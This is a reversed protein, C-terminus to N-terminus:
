TDDRAPSAARRRRTKSSRSSKKRSGKGAKTPVPAELLNKLADKVAASTRKEILRDITARDVKRPKWKGDPDQEWFVDEVKHAVALSRDQACKPVVREPWLHLALQAWDYDGKCLKDWVKKCEKQWARHHPVLRWLPAFNILVGDNLDPNWLPAVRAIEDVFGRLEEVFMEQEAIARRQSAGEKGGGTQVLNTLRREEHRLKPVALDQLVTYISDRTLCHYNLWVSYRRSPVTLQWYIPAKRRSESYRSLHKDFFAKQLYSRLSPGALSSVAESFWRPSQESDLIEICSTALDAPHGPDDVLVPIQGLPSRFVSGWSPLTDYPSPGSGSRTAGACLNAPSEWRKFAQGVLFSLVDFSLNLVHEDEDPVVGIRRQAALISGPPRGFHQCLLELRRDAMFTCKTLSRSPGHTSTLDDILKELSCSSLRRLDSDRSTDWAETASYACPHRGWISELDEWDSDTLQLRARFVGEASEIAALVELATKEGDEVRNRIVESFTKSAESGDLLPGSFYLSAENVTEGRALRRWCREGSSGPSSDCEVDVNPLPVEAVVKPGYHRAVGGSQLVGGAGVCMEVFMRAIRTSLYPLAALAVTVDLPGITVGNPSFVCGNPLFRFSIDSATRETYTVGSHRYADANSSRRAFQAQSWDVVLSLHQYIPSYEGGKAFPVWRDGISRRPVEWWLRLLRFDDGTQLGVKPFALRAALSNHKGFSARWRHRVWYVIRSGPVQDFDSPVACYVDQASNLSVMGLLTTAKERKSLLDFFMIQDDGSRSVIYAAAEVLANDLVREGLDAVLRLKAPGHLLRRRWGNTLDQFFGLRSSLVGLRGHPTLKASFRDVFATYIDQSANAYREYLYSRSNVAVEGFPPNMLVVDYQGRSVDIFGLGRAADDVFLQREYGHSARTRHAYLQLADLLQHEVHEWQERDSVRFLEGHEGYINRVAAHVAEDIQLLSGTEGAMEMSQFVQDVLRGLRPELTETFQGQLNSGGSMPEAVVIRTKQVIPRDPRSIGLENLARQARMWLALAAIQACRADIDIGHLNYQLILAPAALRLAELQPYDQHLTRGTAESAPSTQDAWAEEYMRLLLDFAYLLFHGSGCAPDLVRIDRPDKKRQSRVHVPRHLLDKAGLGERAVDAEPPPEEGEVLFVEDPSKVLYDLDCLTTDGRRMEYWIRGLTNDTLFQVVYRPTFFQNRVALERSDRPAQSEARM